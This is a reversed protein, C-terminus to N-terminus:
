QAQKRGRHQQLVSGRRLRRQLEDGGGRESGHQAGPEPSRQLRYASQPSETRRLPPGCCPSRPQRDGSSALAAATPLAAKLLPRLGESSALQSSLRLPHPRQRQRQEHEARGARRVDLARLVALVALAAGHLQAQRAVLAAGHERVAEGAGDDPAARQPLQAGVEVAAALVARVRQRRRHAELEHLGASAGRRRRPQVVQSLGTARPRLAAREGHLDVGAARRLHPRERHALTLAVQRDADLALLHILRGWCGTADVQPVCDGGGRDRGERLELAAAHLHHVLRGVAREVRGVRQAASVPEAGLVDGFGRVGDRLRVRRPLERAEVDLHQAAGRRPPEALQQGDLRPRVIVRRGEAAREVVDDNPLELGASRHVRPRPGRDM